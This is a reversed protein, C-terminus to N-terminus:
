STGGAADFDFVHLIESRGDWERSAQLGTAFGQLVAPTAEIFELLLGPEEPSELYAVRVAGNSALFVPALGRQQALGTDRDIDESIGAIHHMGVRIRGDEHQYPSPTRSLPQILEIQLEGQYSLAVHMKVTTAVGRYVGQLSTNRYVTWPGVGTFQTWHHLSRELDEVLWALQRIPGKDMQRM